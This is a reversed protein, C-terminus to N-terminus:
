RGLFSLINRASFFPFFAKHSISRYNRSIRDGSCKMALAASLTYILDRACLRLGSTDDSLPARAM